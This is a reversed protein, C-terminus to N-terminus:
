PHFIAASTGAVVGVNWDPILLFLPLFTQAAPSSINKQPLNDALVAALLEQLCM